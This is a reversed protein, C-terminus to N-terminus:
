RRCACLSDDATDHGTLIRVQDRLVLPAIVKHSLVPDVTVAHEPGRFLVIAGHKDPNHRNSYTRAIPAFRGSSSSGGGVVDAAM